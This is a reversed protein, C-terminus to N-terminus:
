NNVFLSIVYSMVIFIALVSIISLFCGSLYNDHLKYWFYDPLEKFMYEDDGVEYGQKRYYDRVGVGSIVAIRNFGSELAFLEAKRILSTGLGIHQARNKVKKGICTHSGYVHLERILACNKISDMVDSMDRNLRLRIFGYLVDGKKNTYSIFHEEGGSSMYSKTRFVIDNMNIGKNKIERERIDRCVLGQEMMKQKVLQRANSYKLGGDISKHPFDRVVRNIRIYEPVRAMAHTIVDILKYAIGESNDEAYPKYEGKLYWERIKTFPTTETPYIKWQDAQYDPDDVVEDIVEKDIEPSSGPLDLMLHIDAKFGNQKLRRLGLKNQENTCKRNVKKLISDKTSQVGIQVRTVGIERFFKLQSYDISGDKTKPTVYDPRTEITLGIVRLSATENIKKEEGLSLMPRMKEWEYFTNYAYYMCTSFWRLYDEPYFPFTAGSIIAEIKSKDNPNNSIHGTNMLQRCRDYVQGVPHHKNQSARMNGPETSLYSRPQIAVLKGNVELKEFPCYHCDMPCGGTRITNKDSKGGNEGLLEGSTFITVSVVGSRSRSGCLKLFKEMDHNRKIKNEKKSNLRIAERYHAFLIPKKKNLIGRYKKGFRDRIERFFKNLDKYSTFKYEFSVPIIKEWIKVHESEIVIKQFEPDTQSQVIDSYRYNSAFEKKFIEHNMYLHDEDTYTIINSFDKSGIDEIDAM